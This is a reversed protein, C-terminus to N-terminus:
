LHPKRGRARARFRAAVDSQGIITPSLANARLLGSHSPVAPVFQYEGGRVMRYRTALFRDEYVAGVPGAGAAM